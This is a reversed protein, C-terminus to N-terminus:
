ELQIELTQSHSSTDFILHRTDFYTDFVCELLSWDSGLLEM